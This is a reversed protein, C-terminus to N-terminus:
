PVIRFRLHTRGAPLEIAAIRELRIQEPGLAEFLRLGGGLLVPMIDIHLEDVTGTALCERVTRAGGVVTVDKTQAAAKAQELAAAVGETVFTFTLQDTEKPQRDPAAHTVVFIPVQFEYNGAYTDPDSAMAFANWGMVVAGTNQIAEQMVDTAALTEFDPYLMAVSGHQDHIFGDLAMTMGAIVKGM